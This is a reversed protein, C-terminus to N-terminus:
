TGKDAVAQQSQILRANEEEIARIETHYRSDHHTSVHYAPAYEPLVASDLDRRQICGPALQPIEHHAANGHFSDSLTQSAQYPTM